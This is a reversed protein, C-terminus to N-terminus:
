SKKVYYIVKDWGDKCKTRTFGAIQIEHHTKPDYPTYDKLEHKELKEISLTM